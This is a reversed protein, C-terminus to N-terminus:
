LRVIILKSKRTKQQMVTIVAHQKFVCRLSADSFLSAEDKGYLLKILRVALGIFRKILTSCPLATRLPAASPSQTWNSSGDLNVFTIFIVHM